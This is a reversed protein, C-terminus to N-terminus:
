SVKKVLHWGCHITREGEHYPETVSGNFTLQTLQKLQTLQLLGQMTGDYCQMALERLGTLQWVAGVGEAAM